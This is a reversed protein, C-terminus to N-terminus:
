RIWELTEFMATIAEDIPAFDEDTWQTPALPQDKPLSQHRKLDANLKGSARNAVWQSYSRAWLEDPQLSYNNYNRDVGASVRRQLEKVADTGMTARYWNAVPSDQDRYRKFDMSSSAFSGRKGLILVDWLHGIEHALNLRTFEANRIRISQPMQGGVPGTLRLQAEHKGGRLTEIPLRGRGSGLGHVRNMEELTEQVLTKMAAPLSEIDFGEMLDRAPGKRVGGGTDTWKGENDRRQHDKYGAAVVASVYTRSPKRKRWDSPRTKRGHAWKKAADPVVAFMYRKQRASKFPM